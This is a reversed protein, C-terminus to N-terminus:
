WDVVVRYFDRYPRGESDTQLRHPNSPEEFLDEASDRQKEASTDNYFIRSFLVISVVHNNGMQKWRSFLDPLFGYLCKEFYLEGDEDFHWM